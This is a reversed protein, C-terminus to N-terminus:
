TGAFRAGSSYSTAAEPAVPVIDSVKKSSHREAASLSRQFMDWILSKTSVELAARSLLRPVKRRTGRERARCGGM